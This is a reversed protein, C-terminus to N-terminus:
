GSAAKPTRTQLECSLRCPRSELSCKTQRHFIAHLETHLNMKRCLGYLTVSYTKSLENGSHLAATALSAITHVSMNCLECMALCYACYVNRAATLGPICLQNEHCPLLPVLVIGVIVDPSCSCIRRPIAHRNNQETSFRQCRTSETAMM